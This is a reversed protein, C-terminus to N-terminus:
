KHLRWMFPSDCVLAGMETLRNTLKNICPGDTEDGAFVVRDGKWIRGEIAASDVVVVGERELEEIRRIIEAGEGLAIIRLDKILQRHLFVIIEAM